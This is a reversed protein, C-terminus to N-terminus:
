ILKLNKKHLLKNKRISSTRQLKESKKLISKSKIIKNKFISQEILFHGDGYTESVVSSFVFANPEIQKILYKLEETDVDPILSVLLSKEKKSFMGQCDIRTVGRHYRKLIEEAIKEEDECIVYFARVKKIKDLVFDTAFSSIVAVILAYLATQLGSTIVTLIIIVINIFLICVGRKLKPFFKNILMALIDSGGTSGGYRYALGVGFGYLFGGIISYLLVDDAQAVLAPISFFEMALTYTALGVFTLVLFKWGFLRLSILFLVVNIILYIVSTPIDILQSYFLNHIIQALGSLGTPIIQAPQFFSCFSFGGIIGAIAVMFIQFVFRMKQDKKIKETVKKSIM